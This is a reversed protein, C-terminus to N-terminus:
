PRANWTAGCLSGAVVRARWAAPWADIGLHAGAFAGALCAISDSDGRTVAGRQIAGVPVEEVM